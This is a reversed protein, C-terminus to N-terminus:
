QLKIKNYYKLIIFCSILAIGSIIFPLKFWINFIVGSLIAGIFSGIFKFGNQLGLIMSHGNKSIDLLMAQTIPAILTHVLIFLLIFILGLTENPIIMSLIISIGSILVSILYLSNSNFRKSLIPILLLNSIITFVGTSGLILGNVTTPLKLVDEVYYSITSTYSQVGIYTIIVLILIIFILPNSKRVKKFDNINFIQINFKTKKNKPSVDKLFISIFIINLICIIIQVIFTIKYDNIGLSGGLYSGLAVGVSSSANLYALRKLRDESKTIYSVYSISGVYYGAIFTGSILRAIIVSISNPFFGFIIQGVMYGFVGIIMPLKKGHMECISGFTPSAIFTSISLCGFLLGFYFTPLDNENILKPTIPHVMNLATLVLSNLILIIIFNKNSKYKNM